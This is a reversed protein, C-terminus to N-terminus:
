RFFDSKFLQKQRNTYNEAKNTMMFVNTSKESKYHPFFVPVGLSVFVCVIYSWIPSYTLIFVSSPLKSRVEPM